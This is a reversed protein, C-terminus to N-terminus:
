LFDGQERVYVLAVGLVLMLLGELIVVFGDHPYALGVTQLLNFLSFEIGAVDGLAGFIYHNFYEIGLLVLFPVVLQIVRNRLFLGLASVLCGWLGCLVFVLAVRLLVFIWPDAYFQRAFLTDQFVGIYLSDYIDPTIAPFVCMVIVLNVLMPLVAVTGSSLFVAFQKSFLYVQRSCRTIVEGIYGSDVESLGSTAYALPSLFVVAYYFLYHAGQAGWSGVGIWAAFCSRSSPFDYSGSDVGFDGIATFASVADFASWISIVTAVLLAIRFSRSRSAKTLEMRLVHRIM